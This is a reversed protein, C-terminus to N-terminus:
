LLSNKNKRRKNLTAAHFFKTHHDGLSLWDIRSKLQWFEKENKLIKNYKNQLEEELKM